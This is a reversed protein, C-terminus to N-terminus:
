RLDLHMLESDVYEEGIKFFAPFTGIHKFGYKEYLHVKGFLSRKLEVDNM